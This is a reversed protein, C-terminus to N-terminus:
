RAAETQAPRGGARARAQMVKTMSKGNLCQQSPVARALIDLPAHPICKM